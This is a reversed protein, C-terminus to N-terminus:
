QDVWLAPQGPPAQPPVPQAVMMQVWARVQPTDDAGAWVANAMKEAIAGQLQMLDPRHAPVDCMCQAVMLRLERDVGGWRRDDLLYGGYSWARIQQLPNAPDFIDIEEPYPPLAPSHMTILISMVVAFQYLNTKFGYKGATDHPPNETRPLEEVWDWEESFQEPAFYGPKGMNRFNWMADKSNLFGVTGRMRGNKVYALNVVRALGFDALQLVPFLAHGDNAPGVNTNGVLINQPDIDFHVVGTGGPTSGEHKWTRNTVAEYYAQRCEPPVRESFVGVVSGNGDKPLNRARDKVPPYELAICSQVLCQFIVWLLRNPFRTVNAQVQCLVKHLSGRGVYESYIIGDLLERQLAGMALQTLPPADRTQAVHLAGRYANQYYKERAVSAVARLTRNICTKAVFYDRPAGNNYDIYFLSAIGNGGWGLTRELRASVNWLTNSLWIRAVRAPAANHAFGVRGVNVSWAPGLKVAGPLRRLGHFLGPGRIWNRKPRRLDRHATAEPHPRGHEDYKAPFRGLTRYKHFKYSSRQQEERFEADAM